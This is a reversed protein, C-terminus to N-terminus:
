FSTQVSGEINWFTFFLSLIHLTIIATQSLLYGPRNPFFFTCWLWYYSLPFLQRIKSTSLLLNLQFYVFTYTTLEMFTKKKKKEKASQITFIFCFRSGLCLFFASTSSPLTNPSSQLASSVGCPSHCPAWLCSSPTQFSLVPDSLELPWVPSLLQGVWPVLYKSSMGELCLGDWRLHPNLFPLGQQAEKVEAYVSLDVFPTMLLLWCSIGEPCGFRPLRVPVSLSSCQGPLAQHHTPAQLHHVPPPALLLKEQPRPPAPLCPAPWSAALQSLSDVWCLGCLPFQLESLGLCCGCSKHSGHTLGHSM